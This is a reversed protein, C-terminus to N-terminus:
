NSLNYLCLQNILSKVLISSLAIARYNCSSSLNLKTNNPIPIVASHSVPQHMDMVYCVVLLLQFIISFIPQAM